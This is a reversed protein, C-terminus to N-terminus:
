MKQDLDRDKEIHQLNPVATALLEVIQRKATHPDPAATVKTLGKIAARLVSADIQPTQGIVDISTFASALVTEGPGVFEEFEKEGSTDSPAFCCPYLGKGLDAAMNKKADADSRYWAPKFGCYQLVIEAIRDFTKLDADPDLRPVFIQGSDALAATLLCIQGAEDETIFYRRVDSPGALPQRKQIRSLFGSLLSGESFAVNAFRTCAVRPLAPSTSGENGALAGGNLGHWLVVQEMLRKSAGMLNAPACAKDTSIAFVDCSSTLKLTSLFHDVKLVNTEILRSLSYVDRESRVHKMAAFHLVLDFPGVDNIFRDGLASGFDVAYTKLTDGIDTDLQGRLDRVLEVLNNESIDVAALLAPGYKVLQRITSSGISGAAGTVLIRKGNIASRIASANQEVDDQFLSRQRGVTKALLLSLDGHLVTVALADDVSM